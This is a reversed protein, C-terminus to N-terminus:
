PVVNDVDIGESVVNATRTGHDHGGNGIIRAFVQTFGNDHVVFTLDDAGEGGKVRAAVDLSGVGEDSTGALHGTSGADFTLDAVITDRGDNGGAYLFLNGDLEGRYAVYMTDNGDNGSFDILLSAGSRVDVDHDAFARITDAGNDGNVVIKLNSNLRLDSGVGDLDHLYANFTDNGSGLNAVLKRSVGARLDDMLRYSIDDAGGHSNINIRTINSALDTWDADDNLRISIGNATGNDRVRIHDADGDGTITLVHDAVGFGANLLCRTELTELGPRQKKASAPASARARRSNLTKTLFDFM